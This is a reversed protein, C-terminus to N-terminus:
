ANLTDKRRLKEAIPKENETIEIKGDGRAREWMRAASVVKEMGRPELSAAQDSGWMSRDLTFHREVYKVDMGMAMITPPVSVEHGSYGIKYKPFENKLTEIGKLNLEDTDAPYTSVCHMICEINGGAWEIERIASKITRLYSMGTSVILPKGTSAMAHLLNKDTLSASAVKLFPVDFQCLFDVSYEDWASAFWPIGMEKCFRDIDKYEDYSFELGRKLDGNTKGFPSERPKELETKTFVTDVDRKQFKVYDCGCAMSAAIMRKATDVSGQVNVGLESIVKIRETM